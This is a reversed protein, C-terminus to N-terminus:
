VPEVFSYYFVDFVVSDYTIQWISGNLWQYYSVGCVAYVAPSVVQSGTSFTLEVKLDVLPDVIPGIFPDLIFQSAISGLLDAALISTTGALYSSTYSSFEMPPIYTGSLFRNWIAESSSPSPITFNWDDWQNPTTFSAILRMLTSYGGLPCYTPTSVLTSNCEPQFMTANSLTRPWIMSESAMIYYEPPTTAKYPDLVWAQKYGQLVSDINYNWSGISPLMLIASSPGVITPWLVSLAIITILLFRRLRMSGARGTTAWFGTSWLSALNNVQFPALLCGLPVGKGHLLEYQVYHLVIASLSLSILVEHIKAAFQLGNLRINQNL